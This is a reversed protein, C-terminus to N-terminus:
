RFIGCPDSLLATLGDNEEGLHLDTAIHSSTPRLADSNRTLSAVYLSSIFRPLLLESPGDVRRRPPSLSDLSVPISPAHRFGTPLINILGKWAQLGLMKENVEERIHSRETKRVEKLSRPKQKEGERWIPAEGTGEM